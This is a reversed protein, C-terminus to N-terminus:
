ASFPQFISVRRFMFTSNNFDCKKSLIFMDNSTPFQCHSFCKVIEKFKNVLHHWEPAFWDDQKFKFNVVLFVMSDRSEEIM